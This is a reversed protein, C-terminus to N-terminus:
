KGKRLYINGNFTRLEFEPGGGNITGYISSDLEIRTGGRGDRGQRQREAAQRQREALQRVREAQRQRENSDAGPPLPPLPPLPPFPPFVFGAGPPSTSTTAPRQQIQVDFDTLVEGHDTRMKLNAKTNAPLTVDVDGNFSTFSMPKQPTLQRLTVKVEGNTSHVVAAGSVDTLMISGNVATVEIDGEIREVLIQDGNVTSLKLNTRAPVQLEVDSGGTLRGSSITMVNNEETVALGAPQSLRRLGAGKGAPQDRANSVRAGDSTVIVDRGTSARVTIGGQFVSVNVTGPRSPDSFPVTLRNTDSQAQVFAAGTLLALLMGVSATVFGTRKMIM